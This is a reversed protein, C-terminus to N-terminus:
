FDYLDTETELEEFTSTDIDVRILTGPFPSALAGLNFSGLSSKELYGENSTVRLEGNSSETLELINNLGFGRNRPSSKVTFGHELSKFIAEEDTLRKFNNKINFNDISKPIGIGLDCVSFSMRRIAPFYQTIIYSCDKSQSHNFINNFVEKLNMSLPVLDQGKLFTREYYTKAYDSYTEIMEESIKWLCLTSRNLSETFRERDFGAEWYNKFKINDLHRNLPATGGTFSISAGKMSFKELICALVVIDDTELFGRKGFDVLVSETKYNSTNLAKQVFEFWELAEGSIPTSLTIHSPNM